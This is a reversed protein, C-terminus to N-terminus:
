EIGLFSEIIEILEEKKAKSSFPIQSEKLYAKLQPVKL